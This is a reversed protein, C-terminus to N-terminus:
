GTRPQRRTQSSVASPPSRPTVAPPTKRLAAMSSSVGSSTKTSTPLSSPLSQREQDALDLSLSGNSLLSPSMTSRKTWNRWSQKGAKGAHCLLSRAQLFSFEAKDDTFFLESDQAVRHSHFPSQASQHTTGLCTINGFGMAPEGATARESDLFSTGEDATVRINSLLLRLYAGSEILIAATSGILPQLFRETPAWPRVHLSASRREAIAPQDFSGVIAKLGGIQEFM